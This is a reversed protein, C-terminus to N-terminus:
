ATRDSRHCAYNQKLYKIEIHRKVAPMCFQGAPLAGTGAAASGADAVAVDWSAARGDEGGAGCSGAGSAGAVAVDRPAARGDESRASAPRPRIYRVASAPTERTSTKKAAATGASQARRPWTQMPM